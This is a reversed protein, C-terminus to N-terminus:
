RTWLRKGRNRKKYKIGGETVNGAGKKNLTEKIEQQMRMLCKQGLQHAVQEILAVRAKSIAVPALRGLLIALPDTNRAVSLSFGEDDRVLQQLAEIDVPSSPVILHHPFIDSSPLTTM